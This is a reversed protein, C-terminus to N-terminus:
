LISKLFSDWLTMGETITNKNFGSLSYRFATFQIISLFLRAVAGSDLGKKFVGSAIGENLIETIIQIYLETISFLKFRMNEDLHVESTYVIRPVGQNKQIHDLHTMLIKLLKATADIAESKISVLTSTLRKGITAIVQLIIDEKNIFHRYIAAETIQSRSAIKSTTLGQLGSEGIISLAVNIIQIKRDQSKV